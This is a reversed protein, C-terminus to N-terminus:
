LMTPHQLGWIPCATEAAHNLGCIRVDFLTGPAVVQVPYVIGQAVWEVQYKTCGDLVNYQIGGRICSPGLPSTDVRGEAPSGTGDSDIEPAANAIPETEEGHGAPIETEEEDGAPIESPGEKTRHKPPSDPEDGRDKTTQANATEADPNDEGPCELALLYVLGTILGPGM